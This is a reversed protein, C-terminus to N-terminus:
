LKPMKYFKSIKQVVEAVNKCKGIREVSIDNEIGFASEKFTINVSKHLDRGKRRSRSTSKLAELFHM